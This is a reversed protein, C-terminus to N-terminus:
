KKKIIHLKTVKRYWEQDKHSAQIANNCYRTQLIQETTRPGKEGNWNQPEVKMMMDEIKVM